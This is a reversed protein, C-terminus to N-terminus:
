LLIFLALAATGAAGVGFGIGASSGNSGISNSILYLGAVAAVGVIVPTKPIGAYKVLTYGVGTALATFLVPNTNM